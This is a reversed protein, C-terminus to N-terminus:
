KVTACLVLLVWSGLRRPTNRAVCWLCELVLSGAADLSHYHFQARIRGSWIRCLVTDRRFTSAAFLFSILFSHVLMVLRLEEGRQLQAATARLRRHCWQLQPGCLAPGAGLAALPDGQPSRRIMRIRHEDLKPDLISESCTVGGSELPVFSSPERLYCVRDTGWALIFEFHEHM